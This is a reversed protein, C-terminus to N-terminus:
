PEHADTCRSNKSDNPKKLLDQYDWTEFFDRECDATHPHIVKYVGVLHSMLSYLGSFSRNQCLKDVIECVSSNQM